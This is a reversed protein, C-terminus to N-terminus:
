ETALIVAPDAGINNLLTLLQADDARFAHRATWRERAYLSAADLATRMAALKGAAQLRDVITIRSVTVIQVPPAPDVVDEVTIGWHTLDDATALDFWNEPFQFGNIGFPGRRVVQGGPLTYENPM